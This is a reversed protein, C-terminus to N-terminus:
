ASTTAFIACANSYATEKANVCNNIRVTAFITLGILCAIGISLFILKVKNGKNKTRKGSETHTRKRTSHYHGSIHAEAKNDSGIKVGVKPAFIRKSNDIVTHPVPRPHRIESEALKKDSISSAIGRNLRNRKEDYDYYRRGNDLRDRKRCLKEIRKQARMRRKHANNSKSTFCM